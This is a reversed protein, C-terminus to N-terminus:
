NGDWHRPVFGVTTHTGTRVHPGYGGSAGDSSQPSTDARRYKGMGHFEIFVHESNAWVTVKKGRGPKGWSMLSGSTATGGGKKFGWEAAALCAVTYGSCDYGLVVPGGTSSRSHRSPYGAREHGGGWSYSLNQRSIRVAEDYVAQAGDSATADDKDNESFVGYNGAGGITSTSQERQKLVPAPELKKAGRRRLKVTAINSQLPDVDITDVLWRGSVPDEDDVMAVMGPLLQFPDELALKVEVESAQRRYDWSWTLDHVEPRDRSIRLVANGRIMESDTAYGLTNAVAWRHWQVEDALAGTADWWNQRESAGEPSTRFQYSQRYYKAEDTADVDTAGSASSGGGGKNRALWLDVNKTAEPEFRRFYATAQPGARQVKNLMTALDGAGNVLSGNAQKWGPAGYDGGLLFRKASASTDLASAISHTWGSRSYTRQQFAGRVDPAISNGGVSVGAATEGIVTMVTGIMVRRSCDNEQCVTLVDNLCKLQTANAVASKVRVKSAADGWGSGDSPSVDWVSGDIGGPTAVVRKKTKKAKPQVPKYIGERRDREPIYCDIGGHAHVGKAVRYVFQARTVDQRSAVLLRDHDRMDSAVQDECVMSWGASTRDIRTVRWWVGRWRVQIGDLLRDENADLSDIVTSTGAPDAIEVTLTAAQDLGMQLPTGTVQQELPLVLDPLFVRVLNNDTAKPKPILRVYPATRPRKAPKKARATAM